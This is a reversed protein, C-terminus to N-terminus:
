LGMDKLKARSYGKNKQYDAMLLDFLQSRTINPNALGYGRGIENNIKDLETDYRGSGMFDTWENLDGLFKAKDNGVNRAYIASAYQHRLDNSYLKPVSTKTRLLDGVEQELQENFKKYYPINWLPQNFEKDAM